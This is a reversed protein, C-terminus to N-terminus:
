PRRHKCTQTSVVLQTNVDNAADGLYVKVGLEDATSRSQPNADIITPRLQRETLHRVVEQGAPGLGVVLVKNPQHINELQDPNITKSKRKWILGLIRDSLPLAQLVMYPAGFMLLIIVSVVLDFGDSTLVGGNRATAAIVFSFEGVQALSIGTALSLRDNLGFLRGVIFILLTKLVVIALAVGMIWHIHSLFWMPKALMGVSAFFLTVM